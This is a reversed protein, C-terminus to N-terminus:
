SRRMARRQSTSPTDLHCPQAQGAFSSNLESVSWGEGWGATYSRAFLVLSHQSSCWQAILPHVKGASDGVTATSSHRKRARVMRQLTALCYDPMQLVWWPCSLCYMLYVSEPAMSSHPAQLGSKFVRGSGHLLHCLTPQGCLLVAASAACHQPLVLGWSVHDAMMRGAGPVCLSLVAISLRDASRCGQVPSSNHWSAWPLKPPWILCCGEVCRLHAGGRRHGRAARDLRRPVPAAQAPALAGGHQLGGAEPLDRARSLGPLAPLDPGCTPTFLVPPLQGAAEDGAQALM